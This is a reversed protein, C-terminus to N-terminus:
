YRIKNGNSDIYIRNKVPQTVTNGWLDYLTTNTSEEVAPLNKVSTPDTEIGFYEDIAQYRQSYWEKIYEIETALDYVYKPQYKQTDFYTTMREWAGSQLFLDCYIDMQLGVSEVSLPGDRLEIWRERLKNQYEEEGQCLSYPHFGNSGSISWNSYNGDYYNGKYHGGLGTDLDWPTIVFKRRYAETTDPDNIDKRINRVSFFKNKNGWNDSIALAKVLLQYDVLNDIYFYKKVDEYTNVDNHLDILPQWAEMGAYEEDPHSLEWANHWKIVCAVSDESFSFEEQEAIDQTGSKYLVGRIAYNGVADIDVKKLQLLSRNIRDTLCYIGVYENNIYVEIFKGVTGNRRNFDTEYPLRSFQNWLDFCVRDRMCIRDIAMANCIWSSACRLGLLTTDVEDSYDATRIKMNFSPKMSYQMATAGRTKFKAPLSVVNGREDTLEMFGNIYSMDKSFEGDFTVKLVPLTTTTQAQASLSLSSILLLILSALINTAHHNHIM